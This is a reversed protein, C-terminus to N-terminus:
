SLKVESKARTLLIIMFRFEIDKVKDGDVNCLSFIINLSEEKLL